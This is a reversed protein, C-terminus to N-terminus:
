QASTFSLPYDARVTLVPARPIKLGEAVGVVCKEFDDDAPQPAVVSVNTLATAGRQVTLKLTVPGGLKPNRKLGDAYCQSLQPKAARLTSTLDNKFTPTLVACGAGATMLAAFAATLILGNKM